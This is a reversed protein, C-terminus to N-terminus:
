SLHEACTSPLSPLPFSNRLPKNKHSYRHLSNQLSCARNRSSFSVPFTALFLNYSNPSFRRKGRFISGMIWINPNTLYIQTNPSVNMSIYKHIAAPVYMRTGALPLLYPVLHDKNNRRVCDMRHNWNHFSVLSLDFTNFKRSGLEFFWTAMAYKESKM